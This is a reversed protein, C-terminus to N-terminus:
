SYLKSLYHTKFQFFYMLRLLWMKLITKLIGNQEWRRSSSNVKNRLNIPKIIKKLKKSIAIDEMLAIEPFGNIEKFLKNSIFIAQDGTAIGTLRSRINILTEIVRFMWNEGSLHIDFRGWLYEQESYDLFISPIDDPLFTDAHLFLFYEGKAMSAGANMQVSRGPKSTLVKDAFVKALSVTRDTSGGDVVIIEYGYERLYQLNKLCATIQEAENLTPIIISFM